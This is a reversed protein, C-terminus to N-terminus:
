LGRREFVFAVTRLLIKVDLWLSWNAGYLYDIKVMESLPIRASGYVQWPGTMGPPLELRSRQWGEIRCDEDLVLPRPGVLAMDGRLVNFLQPLEDM